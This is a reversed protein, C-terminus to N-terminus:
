VAYETFASLMASRCCVVQELDFIVDFKEVFSSADEKMLRNGLKEEEALAPTGIYL